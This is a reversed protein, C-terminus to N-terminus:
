RPECEAIGAATAQERATDDVKAIQTGTERIDHMSGADAAEAMQGLLRERQRLSDIYLAVADADEASPELEALGRIQDHVADKARRAFLQTDPFSDPAGLARIEDNTEDCVAIAAPRFDRGEEGGGCGALLALALTALAARM